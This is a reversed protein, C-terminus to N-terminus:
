QRQSRSREGPQREDTLFRNGRWERVRRPPTERPTPLAAAAATGRLKVPLYNAAM